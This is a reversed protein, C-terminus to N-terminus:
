LNKIEFGTILKKYNSFNKFNIKLIYFKFNFNDLFNKFKLKIEM